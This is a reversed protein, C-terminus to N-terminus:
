EQSQNEAQRRKKEALIEDQTPAPKGKGNMMFWIMGVAGILPFILVLIAILPSAEL